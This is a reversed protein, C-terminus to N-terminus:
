FINLAILGNTLSVTAEKGDCKRYINFYKCKKDTDDSSEKEYIKKAAIDKFIVLDSTPNSVFLLAASLASPIGNIWQTLIKNVDEETVNTLQLDTMKNERALLNEIDLWNSSCHSCLKEFEFAEDFKINKERLTVLFYINKVRKCFVKFDDPTLTWNTNGFNSVHVTDFTPMINLLYEDKSEDIKRNCRLKKNEFQFTRMMHHILRERPDEYLGKIHEVLDVVLLESIHKRDSTEQKRPKVDLHLLIKEESSENNYILICDKTCDSNLEVNLETLYRASRLFPHTRKFTSINIRSYNLSCNFPLSVTELNKDSMRKNEAMETKRAFGIEPFGVVDGLYPQLDEFSTQVREISVPGVAGIDQSADRDIVPEECPVPISNSIVMRTSKILSRTM